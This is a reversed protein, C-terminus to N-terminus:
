SEDWGACEGELASQTVDGVWLTLLLGEGGLIFYKLVDDTKVAKVPYRRGRIFLKFWHSEDGATNAVLEELLPQDMGLAVLAFDGLASSVGKHVGDGSVPLVEPGLESSVIKIFQGPLSVSRGLLM